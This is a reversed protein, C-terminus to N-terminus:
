QCNTAIGGPALIDTPDTNGIFLKDVQMGKERPFLTLTNTGDVFSFSGTKEWTWVSTSSNNFYHSFGGANVDMFISDNGGHTGIRRMWIDYNGATAATAIVDYTMHVQTDTYANSHNRLLYDDDYDVLAAAAPYNPDLENGADPMVVYKGRSALNDELRTEWYSGMTAACEAELWHGTPDLAISYAPPPVATVAASTVIINSYVSDNYIVSVTVEKGVEDATITYTDNEAGAIDVGDASWQYSIVNITGDVDALTNDFALTDGEMPTGTITIDGTSPTDVVNGCNAGDNGLASPMAKGVFIKDINHGGERIILDLDNDGANFTRTGANEWLYQVGDDTANLFDNNGNNTIENVRVYTSNNGGNEAFNRLYVTYDGATALNVTYSAFNVARESEDPSTDVTNEPLYEIFSSNSVAMDDVISWGSGLTGCEAELWVGRPQPLSPDVVAVTAASTITIDDYIGDNYVVTVTITKTVEASTLTYSDSDTNAIAVGDALWEYSVINIAGDTDALTNTATLTQDILADGTIVVDGTAATDAAIVATTEATTYTLDPNVGDNYVVNASIVKGFEDASLVITAATAGTIMEGDALWQYSQLAITGDADALLNTISLTDGVFTNGVIDLTGTAPTDVIVTEDSTISTDEHVSDNYTITVSIKKSAENISLTLTEATAGAIEVGDALWQYGKIILNGDIDFLTKKFSLTVGVSPIGKVVLDGITADDVNAVTATPASTISEEPNVTDTYGVEVSITKGVESQTLTLTASTEDAIANGNALWQYNLLLVSGDTSDTDALTSEISLSEGQTPTGSILIAGTTQSNLNPEPKEDDSGCATIASALVSLAFIRSLNM